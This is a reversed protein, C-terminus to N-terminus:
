GAGTPTERAAEVAGLYTRWAQEVDPSLVASRDEFGSAGFEDMGPARGLAEELQLFRLSQEALWKVKMHRDQQETQLHAEERSSVLVQREFPRGTEEPVAVEGGGAARLAPEGSPAGLGSRRQPGRGLCPLAGRTCPGTARHGRGVRRITTYIEALQLEAVTAFYADRLIIPQPHHASRSSRAAEGGGRM